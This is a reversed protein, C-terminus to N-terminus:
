QGRQVLAIAHKGSIRERQELHWAEVVAIYIGTRVTRGLDDLGNWYIESELGLREGNAITRVHRGYRDIIQAKVLWGATPTNIKLTSIEDRGDGDPSFPNPSTSLLMQHKHEEKNIQISNKKGPSGGLLGAHSTWNWRDLTETKSSIRELSVGRSDRVSPQHMMSSYYLSDIVKGDKNILWASGSTTGLSLTMRNSIGYVSEAQKGFFRVVRSGSISSTDAMLVVFQGPEVFSTDFNFTITSATSSTASKSRLRLGSLSIKRSSRNLVEVYQAQDLGRDYRSQLPNFMIENIIIDGQEPEVYSSLKGYEDPLRIILIPAIKLATNIGSKGSYKIGTFNSQIHNIDKFHAILSMGQQQYGGMVVWKGLGTRSVQIKFSDNHIRDFQKTYIPIRVDSDIRNFSLQNKEDLHLSISYGNFSSSLNEKDSMLVFEITQDKALGFDLSYNWEAQDLSVPAALWSTDLDTTNGVPILWNGVHEESVMFSKTTGSWDVDSVEPPMSFCEYLAITGYHTSRQANLEGIKSGFMLISTILFLSHIM